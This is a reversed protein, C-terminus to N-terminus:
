SFTVALVTLATGVCIGVALMILWSPQEDHMPEIPGSNGYDYASRGNGQNFDAAWNRNRNMIKELHCDNNWDDCEDLNSRMNAERFTMGDLALDVIDVLENGTLEISWTGGKYAINFETAIEELRQPTM